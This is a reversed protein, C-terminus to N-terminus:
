RVRATNATPSGPVSAEADERGETPEVNSSLAAWGTAVVLLGAFLLLFRLIPPRASETKMLPGSHRAPVPGIDASYTAGDLASM